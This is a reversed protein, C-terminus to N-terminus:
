SAGGLSIDVIGYAMDPWGASELETALESYAARLPGSEEERVYLRCDAIRPFCVAVPAPNDQERVGSIRFIKEDRLLEWSVNMDGFQAKAQEVVEWRDTARDGVTLALLCARLERSGKDRQAFTKIAEITAFQLDAGSAGGDSTPPLIGRAPAPGFPMNALFLVRRSFSSTLADPIGDRIDNLAILSRRASIDNLVRNLGLYAIARPSVDFAASEATGVFGFANHGCGAALDIVLEAWQGLGRREVYQLLARSEDAFPFVRAAQRVWVGDTLFLQRGIANIKVDLTGARVLGAHEIAGIHLDAPLEFPDKEALGGSLWSQYAVSAFLTGIQERVADAFEPDSRMRTTAAFLYEVEVM